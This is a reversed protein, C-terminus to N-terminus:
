TSFPLGLTAQMLRQFTAEATKLGFPMSIFEVIWLPHSRSNKERDEERFPVQWHGNALDLKAFLKGGGLWDLIDIVQPLPFGDGKTVSDLARYDVVFRPPQPQSQLNKRRM